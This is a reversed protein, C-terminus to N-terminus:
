RLLTLWAQFPPLASLTPFYFASTITSKPRPNSGRPSSTPLPSTTMNPLKPFFPRLLFCTTVSALLKEFFYSAFGERGGVKPLLSHLLDTTRKKSTELEKMTEDLNLMVVTMDETMKMSASQHAISFLLEHGNSHIPMDERRVNLYDIDEADSISPIGLFILADHEASYVLEGRLFLDRQLRMIHEADVASSRRRRDHMPCASDSSGFERRRVYHTDRIVILTDTHVIKNLQDFDAQVHTPRVVKMTEMFSRGLLGDQIPFRAVLRSGASIINGQRDVAFHWPFAKDMLSLSLNVTVSEPPAEEDAPNSDGFSQSATTEDGEIEGFARLIYCPL